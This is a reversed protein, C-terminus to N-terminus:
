AEFHNFISPTKQRARLQTSPGLVPLSSILIGNLTRELLRLLPDSGFSFLEMSPVDGQLLTLCFLEEAAGSINNVEVISLNKSYLNRLRSLLMPSACKKEMVKLSWSLTMFDFGAVLDTDLIGCEQGRKGAAWIADMALNLGHHISRDDGAVLQLPSLTHTLTKKLRM